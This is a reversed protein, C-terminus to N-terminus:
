SNNIRRGLEHWVFNAELKCIEEGSFSSYKVTVFTLLLAERKKKEHTRIYDKENQLTRPKQKVDFNACCCSLRWFIFSKTSLNQWLSSCDVSMLCHLMLILLLCSNLLRNKTFFYVFEFKVMSLRKIGWGLVTRVTHKPYM